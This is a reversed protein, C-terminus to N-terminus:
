SNIRTNEATLQDSVMGFRRERKLYSELAALLDPKKFDPWHSDTVYIESYAIQWLLFNSVRFEGSTRIILDPDPLDATHLHNQILNESIEEPLIEGALVKKSIKIMADKIESRGGYSIALNLILGSNNKTREVAQQMSVRTNNPLDKLHGITTIKVNKEDLEQIERRVTNVMLEMLASVEWRPRKWNEISFTYLTLIKIGLEACTEVVEHVSDIGRNHGAIRPLGKRQAWRGNGDMIIGIHVPRNPHNKIYLELEKTNL